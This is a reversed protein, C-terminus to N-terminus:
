KREYIVISERRWLSDEPAKMLIQDSGMFNIGIPRYGAFINRIANIFDDRVIDIAGLSNPDNIAVLFEPPRQKLASVLEERFKSRYPSPQVLPYFICFRTPAIAHAYFLLQPESGLVFVTDNKNILVRLYSGVAASRSFVDNGYVVELKKTDSLVSFRLGTMISGALLVSLLWKGLNKFEQSGLGACGLGAAMASYPLLFIFYHPYFYGGMAIGMCGGMAPALILWQHRRPPPKFWFCVFGLYMALWTGLDLSTIFKMSRWFRGWADQYSVTGAYARNYGYFGIWYSDFAGKWVFYTSAVAFPIALGAMFAASIAPLKRLRHANNAFVVILTAMAIPLATQKILLTMGFLLGSLFYNRMSAKGNMLILSVAALFPIAFIETNATFGAYAPSSSAWALLGMSLIGAWLSSTSKYVFLFVFVCSASVFLLAMIRPACISHGFLKFSLNYLYYIGPPKHDFADRYPLGGRNIVDSMYAYAGEDREFPVWLQPVRAIASFAIALLVALWIERRERNFGWPDLLRKMPSGAEM